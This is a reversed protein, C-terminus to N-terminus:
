AHRRSGHPWVGVPAGPEVQVLGAWRSITGVCHWTRGRQAETKLHIGGEESRSRICGICTQTKGQPISMKDSSAFMTHCGNEIDNAHDAEAIQVSRSM